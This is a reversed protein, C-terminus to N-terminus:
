RQTACWYNDSLLLSDFGRELGISPLSVRAAHEAARIRTYFSASVAIWLTELSFPVDSVTSGFNAAKKRGQRFPDSSYLFSSLLL